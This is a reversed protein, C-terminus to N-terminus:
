VYFVIRMHWFFAKDQLPFLHALSEVINEEKFEEHIKLIKIFLSM